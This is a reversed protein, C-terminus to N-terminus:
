SQSTLGLKELTKLCQIEKDLISKTHKKSMPPIKLAHKKILNNVTKSVFRDNDDWRTTDFHNLIKNYPINKILRFFLYVICYHACYSSCINQIQYPNYIVKEFNYLYKHINEIEWPRTGYSCFYEATNSKINHFIAIWHEGESERTDTNVIIGIKKGRNLPITQLENSAYVGCFGQKGCLQTMILSIQRSDM